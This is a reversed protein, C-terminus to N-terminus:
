ARISPRFVKFVQGFFFGVLSVLWLLMGLGIASFKLVAFSSYVLALWNPFSVPQSLMFFSLLNESADFIAGLPLIIAAALAIGYLFAKGRDLRAFLLSVVLGALFIAGIFLFDIFQTQWYIGLTDKEIMYSYYGKLTEGSFSTQGVAFPVPFQSAAYSRELIANAGGVLSFSFLAFLGHAWLPLKSFINQIPTLVKKFFQTM